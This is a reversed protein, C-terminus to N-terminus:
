IGYALDNSAVIHGDNLTAFSDLSVLGFEKGALLKSIKRPRGADSHLSSVYATFGDAALRALHFDGTSFSSAARLHDESFCAAKTNLSDRSQGGFGDNESIRDGHAFMGCLVVKEKLTRDFHHRPSQLHLRCAHSNNGILDILRLGCLRLIQIKLDTLNFVDDGVTANADLLVPLDSSSFM